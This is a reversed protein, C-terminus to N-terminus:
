RRRLKRYIYKVGLWVGTFSLLAGGLCLTWLAITWLTHREVLWRIDLYHFASFLWKKVRRNTNLYKHNGTTPDIYYVSRDYNDVDVKYVPLPRTNDISLYYEDYRDIMSIHFAVDDGHMKRIARAITEESLFLNTVEPLSADIMLNQNGAIIDYVPLDGYYTWEVQKLDPYAKKLQRYDLKYNNLPFTKGRLKEPSVSYDGEINIIWRPIRQLSLAGSLGWTVIFIGLILGLIHHWRYWRKRYPIELTRKQKYRRYIATIGVYLGTLGALMGIIGAVTLTNTWADTNQRLFPIYFTHPIYGVWAWFRQISSTFQLVEGSRAAIYLQHKDKDDFYFKYVPMERVYRSYMIWQERKHLTDVKLIPANVWDRAVQVIYDFTVPKVPQLTDTCFTYTSDNTAVSFLTQGQFQRVNIKRIKSGDPIQGLYDAIDPLSSPLMEMKEYQVTKDVRPFSHYVLVLGSIFWMLFFLAIITGAIRHLGFLFHAGKKM